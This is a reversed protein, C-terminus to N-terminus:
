PAGCAESVSEVSTVNLGDAGGDGILTARVAVRHGSIADLSTIVFKLAFERDGPPLSTDLAQGTAVRAPSTAQRVVWDRGEGRALCGLVYVFSGAPLEDAGGEPLIRVGVGVSETLEGEGAPFENGRLIHAVIDAYTSAGLSGAASGDESMPMTTSIRHLLDAVSTGQFSAWFREGRLARYEGGSLDAGHCRQCHEAYARQGRNAQADTYVGDWASGAGDDQPAAGLSVAGLGAMWALCAAAIAGRMGIACTFRGFDRVSTEEGSELGAMM